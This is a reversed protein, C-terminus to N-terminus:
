RVSSGGSQVSQCKEEEGSDKSDKASRRTYLPERSDGEGLAWRQAFYRGAGRIM